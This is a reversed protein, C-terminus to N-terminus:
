TLNVSLSSQGSAFLEAERRFPDGEDAIMALGDKMLPFGGVIQAAM